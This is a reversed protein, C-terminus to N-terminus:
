RSETAALVEFLDEKQLLAVGTMGRRDM